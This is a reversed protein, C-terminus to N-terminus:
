RVGLYHHLQIGLRVPLRDSLIWGALTRPSLVGHVPSFTVPCRRWLALSETRERAFRYDHHDSLVFKVEDSERLRELNAPDMRGAMGSGPCKQDLIVAARPDLGSTPLSGNTEILVTNGSDLITRVLEPTEPQLLPEGGTLLVLSLGAEKIQRIIEPISREEGGEYAYATDCYTCRLNCGSLRVLVAPRGSYLSEGLLSPYIARIMM